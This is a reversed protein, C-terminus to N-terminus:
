YGKGALEGETWSWLREALGEDLALGSPRTKKGFATFYAGCDEVTVEESAVAYLSTWSGKEATLMFPSAVTMLLTSIGKSTM